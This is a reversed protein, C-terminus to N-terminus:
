IDVREFLMVVEFHNTQPFQDVIHAKTIKYNAQLFIESDTRLSEPYCSVYIIKKPNATLVNQTFSKLGSKPPNLLVVDPKENIDINQPRQFDGAHTTLKKLLHHHLATTKVCSLAFEDNEFVSVKHGLSLMSFTYQGIGCGFEWVIQEPTQMWDAIIDTMLKATVASPQTFSSVACNLDIPTKTKYNYTHFWPQMKPEALKIQENSFTSEDLCKKKQGVEIFFNESLKKLINKELLLTKIDNNAFDLWLGYKEIQGRSSARLRITGIRINFDAQALLDFAQQLKPTLQLCKRIPIFNKDKDILGVKKDKIIFDFRERLSHEGSSHTRIQLSNLHGVFLDQLRKTKQALQESYAVGWLSCGPCTTALDCVKM